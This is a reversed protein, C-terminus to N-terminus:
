FELLHLLEPPVNVTLGLVPPLMIQWKRCSQLSQQVYVAHTAHHLLSWHMNSLIARHCHDVFARSHSSAKHIFAAYNM